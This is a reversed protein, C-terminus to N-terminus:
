NSKNEAPLNYDANKVQSILGDRRSLLGSLYNNSLLSLITTRATGDAWLSEIRTLEWVSKDFHRSTNVSNSVNIMTIM